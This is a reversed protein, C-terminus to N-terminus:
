PKRRDRSMARLNAIVLVGVALQACGLAILITDRVIMPTM